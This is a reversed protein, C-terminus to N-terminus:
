LQGGSKDTYTQLCPTNVNTSSDITQLRRPGCRHDTAEDTQKLFSNLSALHILWVQGVKVAKLKGARLLRRLYQVNYGSVEAVAQVTTFQELLIGTQKPFPFELTNLASM